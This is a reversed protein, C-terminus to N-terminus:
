GKGKVSGGKGNASDKRAPEETATQNKMREARKQRRYTHVGVMLVEIAETLEQLAEGHRDSAMFAHANRSRTQHRNWDIEWGEDHATRQLESEIAALEGLFEPLLEASATRYPQWHVTRDPDAPQPPQPRQRRARSWYLFTVALSVIGLSILLVGTLRNKLLIEVLGLVFVGTLIWFASLWQWSMAAPTDDPPPVTTLPLSSDQTVRAIVITINDSGGRLNALNVLSRCAAELPLHATLQGIEQDNVHSVLGDSCILYADGPLVPYPGEVDVRVTPGPGLSRTIVNRPEKLMIEQPSMNGQRMLEWQLSHDFSLQDIRQGRIRYVRSDGVHGITIGDNGLVAATCTTGMHNFDRNQSGREYIAANAAEIAQRLADAKSILKGGSHSGNGSLGAECNKYFVHPVTDAAIKSALEGVAHGGMGDAVLLLHGSGVWTERDACMQVASADQNMRRRFGIDTIVAYQVKQEWLM